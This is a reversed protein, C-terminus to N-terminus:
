SMAYLRDPNNFTLWGIAGDKEAIIKDTTPKMRTDRDIKFQM